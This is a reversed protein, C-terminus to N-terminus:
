YIKKNTRFVHAALISSSNSQSVNSIIERERERERHGKLVLSKIFKSGMLSQLIFYLITIMILNNRNDRKM